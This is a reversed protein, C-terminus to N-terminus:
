AIQSEGRRLLALGVLYATAAALLGAAPWVVSPQREYYVLSRGPPPLPVPDIAIGHRLALNQIDLMHVVPIGRELCWGALGLETAGAPPEVVLGAPLRYGDLGIHAENGGINVLLQPDLQQLLEIKAHLQAQPSPEVLAPVGARAIAALAAERGGEMAFGGSDGAGGLSALHTRTDILEADALTREMDLWTLEPRNAGFSSSGVSSLLVTELGLEECAVIAALGLAPFSGSLAIIVPGSGPSAQQSLVHVLYAAFDPNTSTRKAPLHGATTTLESFAVGIMGTENPDAQRDVAVGLRQAHASVVEYAQEVRRAAAVQKEYVPTRHARQAVELGGVAALLFLALPLLQRWPRRVVRKRM